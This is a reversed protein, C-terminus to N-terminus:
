KKEMTDDHYKPPVGRTWGKVVGEKGHIGKKYFLQLFTRIIILFYLGFKRHRVYYVDIIIREDWSLMNGGSVQSLGTLGPRM